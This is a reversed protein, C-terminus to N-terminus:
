RWAWRPWWRHALRRRLYHGRGDDPAASGALRVSGWGFIAPAAGVPPAARARPRRPLILVWASSPSTCYTGPDPVGAQGWPGIVIGAPSTASSPKELGLAKALPMALVAAALYVLSGTLWNGHEM